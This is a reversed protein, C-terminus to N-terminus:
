SRGVAITVGLRLQLGRTRTRGAEPSPSRNIDTLGWAHFADVFVWGRGAAARVGGGFAVSWDTKAIDDELDQEQRASSLTAKTRRGVALGVLGYPRLRGRGAGVKALLPLELYDARFTLEEGPVRVTAGKGLLTPQLELVIDERPSWGLVVGGAFATRRGLAVDSDLDDVALRALNPGATLGVRVDAAGAAAAVGLAVVAIAPVPRRTTRM